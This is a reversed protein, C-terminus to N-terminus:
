WSNLWAKTHGEITNNGFMFSGTFWDIGAGILFGAAGGVLNGLGPVLTGLVSGVGCGILASGGSFVVDVGADIWMKKSDFGYGNQYNDYMGFATDIVVGAINAAKGGIKSASKMSSIRNLAKEKRLIFAGAPVRKPKVENKVRRELWNIYDVTFADVGSISKNIADSVSSSDSYGFDTLAVMNTGDFGNGVAPRGDKTYGFSQGTPDTANTPMNSCYAFMNYAILDGNAGLVGDANIFRGTEPDYYRSQLYYFGTETDYYYGRYRFPNQNGVHYEDTIANGSGDTVSLVKGWADYAYKVVVNGQTDVLATVDGM